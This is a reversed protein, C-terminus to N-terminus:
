TGFQEKITSPSTLAKHTTGEQPKEINVASLTEPLLGNRMRM